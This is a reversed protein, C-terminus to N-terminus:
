YCHNMVQGIKVETILDFAKTSTFSKLRLLVKGCTDQALVSLM